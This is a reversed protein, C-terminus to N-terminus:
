TDTIDINQAKVQYNKVSQLITYQGIECKELPKRNISKEVIAYKRACAHTTQSVLILLVRIRINRIVYWARARSPLPAQLYSRAAM